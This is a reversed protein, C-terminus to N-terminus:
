REVVLVPNAGDIALRLTGHPTSVSNIAKRAMQNGIATELKKLDQRMEEAKALQLLYKGVLHKISSDALDEEATCLPTKPEIHL